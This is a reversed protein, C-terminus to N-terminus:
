RKVTNANTYNRIKRRIDNDFYAFRREYIITVDGAPQSDNIAIAQNNIEIDENFPNSLSPPVAGFYRSDIGTATKRSMTVSHIGDAHFKIISLVLKFDRESGISLKIAQTKSNIPTSLDM